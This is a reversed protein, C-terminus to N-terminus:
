VVSTGEVDAKEHRGRGAYLLVGGQLNSHRDFGRSKVLKPVFKQCEQYWQRKVAAPCVILTSSRCEDFETDTPPNSVITMLTQLTKGLGMDDALIGGRPKNPLLSSCVEMACMQASGSVQHHRLRGSINPHTCGDPYVKIKGRGFSQSMSMFERGDMRAFKGRSGTMGKTLSRIQEAKHKGAASIPEDDDTEGLFREFSSGGFAKLLRGTEEMGDGRNQTVKDKLRKEEQQLYQFKQRRDELPRIADWVECRDLRGKEMIEQIKVPWYDRPCSMNGSRKKKTPGNESTSEPTVHNQFLNQHEDGFNQVLDGKSEEPIDNDAGGCTSSADHAHSIGNESVNDQKQSVEPVGPLTKGQETETPAALPQNQGQETHISGKRVCLPDYDILDQDDQRVLGAIMSDDQDQENSMKETKIHMSSGTLDIPQQTHISKGRCLHKPLFRGEEEPESESSTETLDIPKSWSLAQSTKSPAFGHPPQFARM